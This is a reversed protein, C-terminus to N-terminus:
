TEPKKKFQRALNGPAILDWRSRTSMTVRRDDGDDDGLDVFGSYPNSLDSAFESRTRRSDRTAIIELKWPAEPKGLALMLAEARDPSPVGRARASEKSEIM